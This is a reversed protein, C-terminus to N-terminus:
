TYIPYADSFIITTNLFEETSFDAVIKDRVQKSSNEYDAYNIEKLCVRCSCAPTWKKEECGPINDFPRVSFLNDRRASAVYRDFRGKRRMKNLVDCDSIHFRTKGAPLQRLSEEDEFPDFIHLTVQTNGIAILGAPHTLKDLDDQTELVIEGQDLLQYELPNEIKVANRLRGLKAKQGGISRLANELGSFDVSLKM